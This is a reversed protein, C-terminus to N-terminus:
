TKNTSRGPQAYVASRPSKRSRCTGGPSTAPFASRRTWKSSWRPPARTMRADGRSGAELEERTPAGPRDARRARRLARCFRGAGVRRRAPRRRHPLPLRHRLRRSGIARSLGGISSFGHNDLVVLNLKYGEQISTVIESAMMLFSGDGVMVYVERSPDAMKVGLGARSRTAWARTATSWTTATRSRAHALAQAPRGPLSGAACVVVDQPRSARNVAGISKARASRRATGSTYLRDTEAEWRESGIRARARSVGPRARYGALAAALQELAARADRWWRCVARAQVRRVRGRQHQHLARRPNQFATKSATTFDSLRTGIAIVLDAERAAINAGPTGTVGIAGLNLPHDFPLSGKGAQTEGVPIGTADAFSALAETAESYLM